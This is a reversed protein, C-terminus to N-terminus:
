LVGLCTSKKNSIFTSKLLFCVQLVRAIYKLSEFKNLKPNTLPKPVPPAPSCGAPKPYHHGWLLFLQYLIAFFRYIYPCPFNQNHNKVKWIPTIFPLTFTLIVWNKWRSSIFYSSSFVIFDIYSNKEYHFNMKFTFLKCLLEFKFFFLFVLMKKFLIVFECIWLFKNSFQKLTTCFKLM